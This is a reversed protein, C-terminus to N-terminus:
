MVANPFLELSKRGIYAFSLYICCARLESLSGHMLVVCLDAAVANPASMDPIEELCAEADAM